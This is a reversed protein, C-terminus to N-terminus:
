RGRLLNDYGDPFRMWGSAATTGGDVHMTTGTVYSALDSSLFLVCSALEGGTASRGLPIVAGVDDGDDPGDGGTDANIHDPAVANVRIGLPGWEVALTRTLHDAAAKMAGYVAQGPMARYAEITSVVVIAGGAPRERMRRAALQASELVHTFNQAIIADVGKRRLDIAPQRYSGGPVTVLIDLPGFWADVRDFFGELRQSDRVDFCELLPAKEADALAAELAHLAEEDRDVVALRVGARHLAETIPRGLGGAGGTVVATRGVLGAREDLM